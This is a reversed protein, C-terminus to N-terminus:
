RNAEAFQTILRLADAVSDRDGAKVTSVVAQEHQNFEPFLTEM